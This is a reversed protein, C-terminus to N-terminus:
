YDRISSRFIIASHNSPDTRTINQNALRIIFTFYLRSTICSNNTCYYPASAFYKSLLTLTPMFVTQITDKYPTPVISNGLAKWHNISLTSALKAFFIHVMYKSSMKISKLLMHTVQLTHGDYITFACLVRIQFVRICSMIDM